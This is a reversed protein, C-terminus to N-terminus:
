TLETIRAAGTADASWIGNIQGTYIPAAMEYLADSPIKVSFATASATAGFNVFLTSISDNHIMVGKRNTNAALLQVNTAQDNQSTVAATAASQNSPNVALGKADAPVLGDASSAGFALKVPQIDGSPTNDMMTQFASGGAIGRQVTTM